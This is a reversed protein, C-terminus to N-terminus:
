NQTLEVAYFVTIEGLEKTHFNQPFACNGCLQSFEKTEYNEEWQIQNVRFKLNDFIESHCVSSRNPRSNNSLFSGIVQRSWKFTKITKIFNVTPKGSGKSNLHLGRSLKQTDINPYEIINLQM